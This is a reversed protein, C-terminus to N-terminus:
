EADSEFIEELSEFQRESDLESEGGLRKIPYLDWYNYRRKVSILIDSFSTHCPFERESNILCSQLSVYYDGEERFYKPDVHLERCEIPFDFPM